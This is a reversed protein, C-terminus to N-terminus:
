PWSRSASSRDRCRRRRGAAAGLREVQPMCDRATTAHADCAGAATTSASWAGGVLEETSARLTARWSARSSSRARASRCSRSTPTARGRRRWSTSRTRTTSSRRAAARGRGARRGGAAARQDLAAGHLLRGAGADGPRDRRALAPDARRARAGRLRRAPLELAGRRRRDPGRAPRDHRHHHHRARAGEGDARRPPPHPRPPRRRPRDARGGLRRLGRGHHLFSAMTGAARTSGGGLYAIKIRAM